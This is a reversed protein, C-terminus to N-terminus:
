MSEHYDAESMLAEFSEVARARRSADLGRMRALQPANETQQVHRLPRLIHVNWRELQVRKFAAERPM